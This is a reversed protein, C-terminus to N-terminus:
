KNKKLFPFIKSLKSPPPAVLAANLANKFEIVSQYRYTQVPTTAKQLVDMVPKPISRVAPLPMTRHKAVTNTVTNARYPNTNTLLEFLTVAAEYIDACVGVEGFQPENCFQEPAAYNPTGMMGHSGLTTGDQTSSIGLDMLRVNRGNEVMINSPKVDLHLIQQQGSHLYHLADLVPMFMQCIKRMSEETDRPYNKLYQDITQGQVLKSIIWIPGGNDAWECYGLMEILNQHMFMLSAEHKARERITKINAYEQRVMKIAVRQHTRSNFGVYVVGMAGSGLLSNSEDYQYWENGVKLYVISGKKIVNQSAAM